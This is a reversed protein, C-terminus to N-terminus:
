RSCVEAARPRGSRYFRPIKFNAAVCNGPRILPVDEIYPTAITKMPLRYLEVPRKSGDRFHLTCAYPTLDPIRKETATANWVEVRILLDGDTRAPHVLLKLKMGPLALVSQELDVLNFSPMQPLAPESGEVIMGERASVRASLTIHSGLVFLVSGAAIANWQKVRLGWCIM